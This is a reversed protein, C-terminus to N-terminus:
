TKVGRFVFGDDSLLDAIEREADRWIERALNVKDNRASTVTIDGITFDEANAAQYMAYRYYALGAAAAELRPANEESVTGRLRRILEEGADSCLTTYGVAVEMPLSSILSFRELIEQTDLTM